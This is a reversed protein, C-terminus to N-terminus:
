AKQHAAGEGQGEGGPPSPVGPMATPGPNRATRRAPGNARAARSYNSFPLAQSTRAHHTRASVLAHCTQGNSARRAPTNPVHALSPRSPDASLRPRTQHSRQRAGRPLIQFLALGPLDQRARALVLARRAPRDSTRRAPIDESPLGNTPGGSPPCLVRLAPLSGLLPRSRPARILIRALLPKRRRAHDPRQTRAARSYSSCPRAQAHRTRASVLTCRTPGNARAARSYKSFPLTQAPKPTVPGRQSSPACPRATPHAGRPLPHFM